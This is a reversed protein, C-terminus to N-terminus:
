HRIDLQTLAIKTKPEFSNIVEVVGAKWIMTWHHPSEFYRLTIEISEDDLIRYSGAYDFPAKKALDVRAARLSYPGLLNTKGIGWTRFGL